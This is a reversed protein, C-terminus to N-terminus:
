PNIIEYSLTNLKQSLITLVSFILLNTNETIEPVNMQTTPNYTYLIM